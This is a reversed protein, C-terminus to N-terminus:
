AEARPSGCCKKYKKSSGCPCPANRGTKRGGSPRAAATRPNRHPETLRKWERAEDPRGATACLLTLRDAVQDRDRVGPTSYGRRLLEEARDPDVPGTRFSDRYCDSWGIWGWGWEPDATLWSDFLEDAKGHEGTEFYTEALARRLNETRWQEEGSFRRLAEACFGIRATLFERERLGANWLEMEADSLWNYLSQTLPFRDDFERISVTGAADSLALVDAWADLWSAACATLDNRQQHEYGGQIKDDLLELCVRDPWWREWLGLLCIWIWDVQVSAPNRAEWEHHLPRAVEEVSLAGACLAEVAGRDLDCGMTRLKDLLEHDTLGAVAPRLPRRDADLKRLLSDDKAAEERTIREITVWSMKVGNGAHMLTSVHMLSGM